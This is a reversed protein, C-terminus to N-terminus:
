KWSFILAVGIGEKRGSRAMQRRLNSRETPAIGVAQGRWVRAPVMGTRLLKRVGIRMFNKQFIQDNRILSLRVDCQMRRAKEKAGLQKTRTGLDAGLTEVTTELASGEKRSCDQM